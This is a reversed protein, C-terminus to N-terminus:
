AAGGEGQNQLDFIMYAKAVIVANRLTSNGNMEHLGLKDYARYIYSDVTRPQLGLTQAIGKRNHAAAICRAVNQEQPTLSPLRVITQEVWFREEAALNDLLDTALVSLQTVRPDILVHGTAVAMIANLLVEPQCGKPLYALGLVGEGLLKTVEQLHDYASLFVIGMDPYQQKLRRGLRIGYPHRGIPPDEPGAPIMIDLVAVAPPHTHAIQYATAETVATQVQFGEGELYEQIGKAMFLDDDVLLVTLAKSKM